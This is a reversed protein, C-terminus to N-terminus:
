DEVYRVPIMPLALLMERNIRYIKVGNDMCGTPIILGYNVLAKLITYIYRKSIATEWEITAISPCSNEFMDNAHDCLNWMVSKVYAPNLRTSKNKDTADYLAPLVKKRVIATIKVSM